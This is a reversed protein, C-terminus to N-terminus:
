TEDDCNQSKTIYLMQQLDTENNIRHSNEETMTYPIVKLNISEPKSKLEKPYTQWLKEAQRKKHSLSFSLSLTLISHLIPM